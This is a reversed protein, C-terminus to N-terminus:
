KLAELKENLSQIEKVTKPPKLDSIAKVKSTITKIEQKTILHGLFPGEKVGFSCKRPNLKMYISRFRNFTEQIDVLIDEKFASKIVMDDVHVELNQGIQDNFMKYNDEPLPYCDKPCANNVDTFDVCMKWKGNDKKVMDPNSVWTQYKVEQLINDKMLEKVEKCITEKQDSALGRKKQKVQEIHKYENLRHEINFPKGEVVVTTPIGIMNAYTWTFVDTNSRLLDHLKRKISTLLQKGIVIMQEPYKDNVVIREEADVCGLVGKAIELPTEKLKKQREEVKNPEYTSFVIGIGSHTHFKIAGHITSVVIGIKQMVTRELLLNHPFNSKSMDRSRRSGILRPPQDCTKAVKETALIERPSKSLNSRLRHNHGYYPSFRDRNKKGKNNDWSSGKKFIDFSERHENPAGNDAVEKAEIWTYTKEMLGKYTTPLDTFLFKMLSRTELGHVFGFIHHEKHLGLIQLTDDMYRTVFARTSEGERQNINHAALHTKM